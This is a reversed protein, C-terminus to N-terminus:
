RGRLGRVVLASVAEAADRTGPRAWEAALLPHHFRATADFVAGATAAPDAATFEGDAIGDEIIGRLQGLLDALHDAVAENHEATLIRYTAFLQPDDGTRARMEIFFRSLWLRLREAPPTRTDGAVPALADTIRRLWRRTVAERLAAKSSFRRYVSAHSVGLVQAVDLVTAKAPGHRRLVEETASLITEVDLSTPQTM